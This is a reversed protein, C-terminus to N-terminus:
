ERMDENMQEVEYVEPLGRDPGDPERKGATEALKARLEGPQRLLALYRREEPTFYDLLLMLGPLAALLLLRLALPGLGDDPVFLTGIAVVAAAAGIAKALRGWEYPVPF